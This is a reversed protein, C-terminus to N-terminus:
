ARVQRKANAATERIGKDQGANFAEVALVNCMGILDGTTPKEPLTLLHRSVLGAILMYTSVSTYEPSYDADDALRDCDRDEGAWDYEREPAELSIEREM